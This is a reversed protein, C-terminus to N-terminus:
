QITGYGKLTRTFGLKLHNSDNSLIGADEVASDAGRRMNNISWTWQGMAYSEKVALCFSRALYLAPVYQWSIFNEGQSHKTELDLCFPFVFIIASKGSGRKRCKKGPQALISGRIRKTLMISIIQNDIIHFRIFALMSHRSHEFGPELEFSYTKIALANM